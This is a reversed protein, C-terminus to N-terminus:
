AIRDDARSQSAYYALVEEVMEDSVAVHETVSAEVNETVKGDTRDAIWRVAVMNGALAMEIVKAAIHERRTKRGVIGDLETRLIEALANGKVPRGRPNGSHGKQFRM